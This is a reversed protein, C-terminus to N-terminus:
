LKGPTLFEGLNEMTITKKNQCKLEEGAEELASLERKHTKPDSLDYCVQILQNIELGKKIVFDVEKGNRTQYYFLETNPRFGRRVLALFVANEMLKGWDPSFSFNAAAFGTDPFYIKKASKIRESTKLNYKGLPMFMYTDFLYGLYRSVTHHSGIGSAKVLKDNSIQKTYSASLLDILNTLETVYKVKHRKVVDKLVTADRLTAFYDQPALNNMVVEPYGGTQLYDMLLSQGGDRATMFENFSFPYVAIEQYRGTLHTALEGSLLKANSGTIILNKGRRQMTNAFFEWKPLNQIEDFLFYEENPYVEELATMIKGHDRIKVVNEEDFNLYGFPVGALTELCYFSKGARRPGTVVKILNHKLAERGQSLNDRPIFKKTLLRELEKKQSYIVDVAM